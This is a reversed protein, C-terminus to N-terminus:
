PNFRPLEGVLKYTEQASLSFDELRNQSALGAIMWDFIHFNKEDETNIHDNVVRSHELLYVQVKAGTVKGVQLHHSM